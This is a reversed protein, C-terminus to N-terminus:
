AAKSQLGVTRGRKRLRQLSSAEIQQVRQRVLGVRQGVEELTRQRGDDLGFRLRLVLAARPELTQLLQHLLVREEQEELAEFPAASQPDALTQALELGDEDARTAHLPVYTQNASQRLRTVAGLGLGLQPDKVLEFETPTRGLAALLREEALKIRAMSEVVGSPLRVLRSHNSLARRMRQKVWATAYTAFRAGFGPDFREAALILGINGESILDPLAQGLGRYEFALHVVLRLHSLVLRERAAANGGRAQQGLEMEEEASLLPIPLIDRLYLRLVFDAENPARGAWRDVPASASAEPTQLTGQAQRLPAPAVLVPHQVLKAVNANPKSPRTEQRRGESPPPDQAPPMTVTRLARVARAMPQRIQSSESLLTPPPVSRRPQLRRTTPFSLPPDFDTIM